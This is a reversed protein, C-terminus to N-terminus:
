KRLNTKAQAALSEFAATDGNAAALAAARVFQTAGGPGSAEHIRDRDPESLRFAFVVQPESPAKEKKSKTEKPTRDKSPTKPNGTRKGIRNKGTSPIKMTDEMPLIAPVEVGLAKRLADPPAEEGTLENWHGECVGHGLYTVCADAHCSAIECQGLDRGCEVPVETAEPVSVNVPTPDQDRVRPVDEKRM